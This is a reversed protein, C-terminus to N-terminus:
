QLKDSMQFLTYTGIPKARGRLLKEGLSHIEWDPVLSVNRRTQEGIFVSYFPTEKSLDSLRHATNVCDGIVTYELRNESGFSGMLMRGTNIGIGVSYAPREESRRRANFAELEKMINIATLVAAQAHDELLNPAGFLALISDGGFKNVEGGYQHIIDIVIRYYENLERHLRSLDADAALATFDRIDAFFVTADVLQVDQLKPENKLINGAVAKGVYRELLSKVLKQRHPDSGLSDLQRALEFVDHPTANRVFGDDDPMELIDRAAQILTSIPRYTRRTATNAGSLALLFFATALIVTLVRSIGVPSNFYPEDYRVYVPRNSQDFELWDTYTLDYQGGANQMTAFGEEVSQNQIPESIAIDGNEASYVFPSAGTGFVIVENEHGATAERILDSVDTAAAVTVASGVGHAVDVISTMWLGYEFQELTTLSRLTSEQASELKNLPSPGRASEERDRLSLWINRDTDFVVLHDIGSAAFQLAVVDDATLESLQDVQVYDAITGLLLDHSQQVRTLEVALRDTINDLQRSYSTELTQILLTRVVSVGIVALLLALLFYPLVVRTRISLNRWRQKHLM